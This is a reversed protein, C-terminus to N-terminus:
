QQALYRKALRSYMASPFLPWVRHHSCVTGSNSHEPQWICMTCDQDTPRSTEMTAHNLPNILPGYAELDASHYIDCLLEEPVDGNDDVRIPGNSRYDESHCEYFLGPAICRRSIATRLPSPNQVRPGM